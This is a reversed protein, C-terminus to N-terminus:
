AQVVGNPFSKPVKPATRSYYNLEGNVCGGTPNAPIVSSNAVVSCRPDSFKTMTYDFYALGSSDTYPRYNSVMYAGHQQPVCTNLVYVSFATVAVFSCTADNYSSIVIFGPSGMTPAASPAAAELSASCVPKIVVGPSLQTCSSGVSQLRRQGTCDENTYNLYKV